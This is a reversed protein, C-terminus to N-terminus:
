ANKYNQCPLPVFPTRPTQHSHICLSYYRDESRTQFRNSSTSHANYSYQIPPLVSANLSLTIRIFCLHRQTYSNNICAAASNSKLNQRHIVSFPLRYLAYEYLDFGESWALHNSKSQKINTDSDAHEM